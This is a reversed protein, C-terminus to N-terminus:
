HRGGRLRWRHGSRSRGHAASPPPDRQRDDQSKYVTRVGNSSSLESCCRSLARTMTPRPACSARGASRATPRWRPLGGLMFSQRASYGNCRREPLRRALGCAHWRVFSAHIWEVKAAVRRPKNWSQAQFTLSAYHRRVEQPPRGVPRKLLHGIRNPLVTDAPLRITYGVREAELFEYMEPNAFAGGGRFYLRRATGRYRAIVTPVARWGDASHVNGPRV